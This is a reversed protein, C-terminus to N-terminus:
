TMRLGLSRIVGAWKETERAILGGFDEPSGPLPMAGLGALRAALGPDALGAQIAANLAAIVPGPTGRPAGLGAIAFAQYGALFEGVTPVEPLADSRRPSTVALARVRGARIHGIWGALNDFTAQVRGGMLDPALPAAGRYPVQVVDIGAEQRFLEGALHSITGTGTNALNLRGPHARAHAILEPVSGAPLDPVVALVLPQMSIGAVPAVDRVFDYGLGEYLAGNLLNSTTTKLLTYGDPAARVVAETALNTSAGPRNEVLFPQGLRAQLWDAVLRALIDAGGGAPFGVMVRVPRSPYADARAGACPALAATLALSLLRRRDANM